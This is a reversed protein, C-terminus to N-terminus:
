KARQMSCQLGEIAEMIERTMQMHVDKGPNGREVVIPEGFSVRIRSPKLFLSGVPLARETGDIRAPVVCCGLMAAIMGVGRRPDLRSGDETLGGEPFIVVVEGRRLRRATEKITSPRPCGRRVPVCFTRLIRGTVPMSFLSEKAMFVPRRKLAAGMVPPDLYSLHNSAVIVGGTDPVRDANLVELRNIAKFFALSILRLISYSLNRM